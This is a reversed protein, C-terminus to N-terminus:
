MHATTNLGILNKSVFISLKLPDLLHLLTPLKHKTKLFLVIEIKPANHLTSQVFYKVQLYINTLNLIYSPDLM